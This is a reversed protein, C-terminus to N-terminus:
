RDINGRSFRAALEVHSSWRFQDVVRIWDLSFGASVLLAADRAFTVPNCSVAAVLKIESRAIETMQAEAGARPPDIVVADASALEDPVLPRRFLDRVQGDVSKLGRAQRWGALLADIMSPAGEFASVQATKALPLAFTGCGAFLDFVRPAFGVAEKVSAVLAAEGHRTAQLFAGSPPTVRASGFPIHPRRLEVVVDGDWSLRAFDHDQAVKIVAARMATDLAHGGVIGIDLGAPGHTVTLGLEGKRSAGIDVFQELGELATLIAPEVVKCETIPTLDHSKPGHFGVIVGTKKRRGALVARRRACPPSTALGVIPATLGRRDLATKVRAVKWKAVFDDSAHLLACGGCEAYHPCAPPVRHPSPKVIAPHSMRGDAVAGEVIEGPLARAVRLGDPGVGDGRADLREVLVRM